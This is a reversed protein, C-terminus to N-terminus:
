RYWEKIIVRWGKEGSDYRAIRLVVVPNSVFEHYTLDGHGDTWVWGVPKHWELAVGQFLKGAHHQTLRVRIQYTREAATRDVTRGTDDTKTGPNVLPETYTVTRQGDTSDAPISKVTADDESSFHLELSYQPEDLQAAAIHREKKVPKTADKAVSKIRKVSDGTTDIFNNTGLKIRDFSTKPRVPKGAKDEFGKIAAHAVTPHIPVTM